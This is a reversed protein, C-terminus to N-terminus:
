EPQWQPTSHSALDSFQENSRSVMRLPQSQNNEQDFLSRSVNLLGAVLDLHRLERRM